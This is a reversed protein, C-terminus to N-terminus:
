SEKQANLMESYYQKMTAKEIKSNCSEHPELGKRAELWPTESHSLLELEFSSLAGYKLIIQEILEKENSTIKLETEYKKLQESPKTDNPYQLQIISAGHKKFEAYVSPIVPGHVWAEFDEDIISNMYVLGWAEVYYLLKQLKKNSIFDGKHENYTIVYRAIDIAKM